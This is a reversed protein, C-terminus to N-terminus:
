LQKKCILIKNNLKIPSYLPRLIHYNIQGKLNQKDFEPLVVPFKVFETVKPLRCKM